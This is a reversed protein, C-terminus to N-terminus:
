DGTTAGAPTGDGATAGAPAGEGATAGDPAGGAGAVGSASLAVTGEVGALGVRQGIKKGGVRSLSPALITRYANETATPLKIGAKKGANCNFSLTGIRTAKLPAPWISM